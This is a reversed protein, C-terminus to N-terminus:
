KRQIKTHHYPGKPVFEQSSEYAIWELCDCLFDGNPLSVLRPLGLLVRAVSQTTLTCGAMSLLRLRTLTILDETAADSVRNSHDIELKVLSERASHSIELIHHHLNRGAPRVSPRSLTTQASIPFCWTPSCLCPSFVISLSLLPSLPRVRLASIINSPAM